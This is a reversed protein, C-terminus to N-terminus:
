EANTLNTGARYRWGSDNISSGPYHWRTVTELWATRGDVLDVPLWAFYLHFRQAEELMQNSFGFLM